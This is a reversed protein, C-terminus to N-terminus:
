NWDVRTALQSYQAFPRKEAQLELGQESRRKRRRCDIPCIVLFLPANRARYFFASDEERNGKQVRLLSALCKM